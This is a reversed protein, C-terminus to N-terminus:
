PGSRYSGDDRIEERACAGGAAAGVSGPHARPTPHAAASVVAAALGPDSLRACPTPRQYPQPDTHTRTDCTRSPHRARPTGGAHLVLGQARRDGPRPRALPRRAVLQVRRNSVPSCSGSRDRNRATLELLMSTPHGAHGVGGGGGWAASWRSESMPWPSRCGHAM